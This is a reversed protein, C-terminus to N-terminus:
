GNWSGPLLSKFYCPSSGLSSLGGARMTFAWWLVFGVQQGASSYPTIPLKQKGGDLGQFSASILSLFYCASWACWPWLLHFLFTRCRVKAHPSQM